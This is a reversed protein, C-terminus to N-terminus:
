GSLGVTCLLLAGSVHATLLPAVCDLCFAFSTADPKSQVMRKKLALIRFLEDHRESIHMELLRNNPLKLGCINCEFIHRCAYHDDFAALSSFSEHCGDLSCFIDLSVLLLAFLLSALILSGNRCVAFEIAGAATAEHANSM